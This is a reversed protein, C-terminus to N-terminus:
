EEIIVFIDENPKKMFYQERAFKELNKNNTKLQKLRQSDIEIRETYYVRDKEFQRLNRLEKYRDILNNRDFFLLWFFFIILTLIYKNKFITLLRNIIPKNISM